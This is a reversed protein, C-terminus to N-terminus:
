LSSVVQQDDCCGRKFVGYSGAFRLSAQVHPGGCETFATHALESTM